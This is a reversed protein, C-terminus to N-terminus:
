LVEVDAKDWDTKASSLNEITSQDSLEAEQIQSLKMRVTKHNMALIGDIMWAGSAIPYLRLIQVARTEAKEPSGFCAAVEVCRGSCIGESVASFIQAQHNADSLEKDTLSSGKIHQALREYDAQSSAPLTSSLAEAARQAQERQKGSCLVSTGLAQRLLEALDKDAPPRPVDKESPPDFRKQFGAEQLASLDRFVTRRSVGLRSAMADVTKVAGDSLM